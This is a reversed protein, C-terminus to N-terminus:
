LGRDWAAKCSSCLTWPGDHKVGCAPCIAEVRPRFEKNLERLDATAADIAPILAALSM